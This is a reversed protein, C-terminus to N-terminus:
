STNWFASSFVLIYNHKIIFGQNVQRRFLKHLKTGDWFKYLLESLYTWLYSSHDFNHFIKESPVALHVTSKWRCFLQIRLLCYISSFQNEREWRITSNVTNLDLSFLFLLFHNQQCCASSVSNGPVLNKLTLQKDPNLFLWSRCATLTVKLISLESICIHTWYCTHTVTQPMQM